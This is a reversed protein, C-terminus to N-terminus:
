WKTNRKWVNTLYKEDHRHYKIEYTYYNGKLSPTFSITLFHKKKTYMGLLSELTSIEGEIYEAVIIEEHTKPVKEWNIKM